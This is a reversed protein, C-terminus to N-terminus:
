GTALVGLRAPILQSLAHEAIWSIVPVCVADGFGYLAQNRDVELPFDAAGQLRAYERPSMWRMHLEGNGAVFVIQRSSGGRPTRLCGALGDTRIESRSNGQRVRRYITGVAVVNSRKLKEIRRLHTPHMEALHKEVKEREWWEEGDGQDIIDSLTRQTPPLPPLSLQMWGTKLRINDTARQLSAPRIGSREANWNKGHAVETSLADWVCGLLFLRPRSQPVFHKADVVFADLAYGLAALSSVAEAFDKGSHSTLFGLVNEILLLPPLGNRRRLRQLVKLFGYFAGSEEGALGKRNGALSLDVCPFSATALVTNAPIRSDVADTRWIDEVHYYDAPGFLADYMQKKKPDIDNAYVCHWGFPKLGLHVLGIGAFFEAFGLNIQGSRGSRSASCAGNKSGFGVATMAMQTQRCSLVFVTDPVM